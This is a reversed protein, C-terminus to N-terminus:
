AAKLVKSVNAWIGSGDNRPSHEVIIQCEEGEISAPTFGNKTEEPSLPRGLIAVLDRYFNSKPHLSKTYPKTIVMPDGNEMLQEQSGYTVNFFEKTADPDDSFRDPKEYPEGVNLVVAKHVKEDLPEFSGPSSLTWGSGISTNENVNSM